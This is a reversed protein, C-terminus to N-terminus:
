FGCSPADAGGHFELEALQQQTWANNQYIDLFSKNSARLRSPASLSLPPPSFAAMERELIHFTQLFSYLFIQKPASFSVSSLSSSTEKM